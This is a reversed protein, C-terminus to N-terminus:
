HRFNESGREIKRTGYCSDDLGANMGCRLHVSVRMGPATYKSVGATFWTCLLGSGLGIPYRSALCSAERQKFYCSGRLNTKHKWQVFKSLIAPCSFRVFSM